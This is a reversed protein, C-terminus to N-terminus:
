GITISNHSVCLLPKASTQVSLETNKLKLDGDASHANGARGKRM